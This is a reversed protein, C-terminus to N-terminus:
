IVTVNYNSNPNPCIGTISRIIDQPTNVNSPTTSNRDYLYFSVTSLTGSVPSTFKLRTGNVVDHQQTYYNGGVCGSIRWKGSIPVAFSTTYSGGSSIASNPTEHAYVNRQNVVGFYMINNAINTATKGSIMSLRTYGYVADINTQIITDSSPMDKPIVMMTYYKEENFGGSFIEYVGYKNIEPILFNRSVGDASTVNCDIVMDNNNENPPTSAAFRNPSSHLGLYYTGTTQPTKEFWGMNAKIRWREVNKGSADYRSNKGDRTFIIEDSQNKIFDYETSVFDWHYVSDGPIENFDYIGATVGPIGNINGSLLPQLRNDTTPLFIWFNGNEVVVNGTFSTYHGTTGYPIQRWNGALKNAWAKTSQFNYYQTDEQVMTDWIIANGM